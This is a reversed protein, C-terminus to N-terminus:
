ERNDRPDVAFEDWEERTFAETERVAAVEDGHRVVTNASEVHESVRWYPQKHDVLGAERLRVLTPGVSGEPIATKTRIESQTFAQDRHSELFQLIVEANTGPKPESDEELEDFRDATIPM